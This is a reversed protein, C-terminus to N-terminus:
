RAGFIVLHLCGAAFGLVAGHLLLLREDEKVASRLEAFDASSLQRIPEAVLARVRSSQRRNFAPDTLPTMTYEVAESALSERIADFRAIGAPNAVGRRRESGM